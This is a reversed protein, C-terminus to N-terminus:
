AHPQLSGISLKKMNLQLTKMSVVNRALLNNRSLKKQIPTFVALIIVNNEKHLSLKQDIYTLMKKQGHICVYTMTM